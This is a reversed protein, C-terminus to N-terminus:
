FLKNYKNFMTKSSFFTKISYRSNISLRKQVSKSEKIIKIKQFIKENKNKVLIMNPRRDNFKLLNINGEIKSAVVPLGFSLAQLISTSSTEGESIHLYLDLKDYWKVLNSTNLNGEFKVCDNVKLMNTKKIYKKLTPGSGALSLKIKNKRFYFINKVIINLLIDQKKEKVFRAAMGLLFHNRVKKMKKQFKHTNIGNNIINCKIGFINCLKILINRKPRKSVLVVNDSLKSNIIFSVWDIFRKTEDPTHHVYILKVRYFLKYIFYPFILKDHIIIVNFRESKLFRLLSFFVNKKFYKFSIDNKICDIKHSQLLKEKGGFLFHFEIKKKLQKAGDVLSFAVASNGGLGSYVCQLIKV